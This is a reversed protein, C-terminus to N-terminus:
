ISVILRHEYPPNVARVQAVNFTNIPDRWDAMVGSIHGEIGVAHGYEHLWIGYPADRPIHVWAVHNGQADTSTTTCAYLNGPCLGEGFTIHLGLSSIDAYARWEDLPALFNSIPTVEVTGGTQGHVRPVVALVASWFLFGFIVVCWFARGPHRM